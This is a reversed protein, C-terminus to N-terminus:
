DGKIQTLYSQYGQVSIGPIALINLQYIKNDEGTVKMGDMKRALKSQMDASTNWNDVKKDFFDEVKEASPKNQKALALYEHEIKQDHSSYDYTCYHVLLVSFFGACILLLTLLGAISKKDMKMVSEDFVITM